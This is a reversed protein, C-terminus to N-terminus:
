VVNLLFCAFSSLDDISCEASDVNVSHLWVRDDVSLHIFAMSSDSIHHDASEDSKAYATSIQGGNRVM